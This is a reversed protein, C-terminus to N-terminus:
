YEPWESVGGNINEDALLQEEAINLKASEIALRSKDIKSLKEELAIQIAKSRSPFLNKDVLLDIRQLIKKDVSIAIKTTTAM